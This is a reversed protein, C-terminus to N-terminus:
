KVHNLSWRFINFKQAWPKTGYINGINVDVLQIKSDIYEAIDRKINNKYPIDKRNVYGIAGIFLDC